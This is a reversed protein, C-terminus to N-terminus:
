PSPSIMIISDGRLLIAGLPNTKNNSLEEADQLWLNMREDFMALKGRMIKGGHLKILITKGVDQKL